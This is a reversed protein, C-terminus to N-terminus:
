KSINFNSFIIDEISPRQKITVSLFQAGLNIFIERQLMKVKRLVEFQSKVIIFGRFNRRLFQFDIVSLISAFFQVNFLFFGLTPAHM